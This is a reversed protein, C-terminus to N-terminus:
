LERCLNLIFNSLLEIFKDEEVEQVVVDADLM